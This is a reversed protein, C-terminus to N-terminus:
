EQLFLANCINGNIIACIQVTQCEFGGVKIFIASRIRLRMSNSSRIKEAMRESWGNEGPGDKRNPTRKKITDFRKKAIKLKAGSIKCGAKVYCVRRYFGWRM